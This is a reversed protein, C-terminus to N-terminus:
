KPIFGDFGRQLIKQEVESITTASQIYEQKCKKSYLELVKQDDRLSPLSKIFIFYAITFKMEFYSHTDDGANVGRKFINKEDYRGLLFVVKYLYRQHIIKSKNKSAYEVDLIIPCSVIENLKGFETQEKVLQSVQKKVLEQLEMVDIPNAFKRPRNGLSHIKLSKIDLNEVNTHSVRIVLGDRSIKIASVNNNICNSLIETILFILPILAIVIEIWPIYKGIIFSFNKADRNTRKERKRKSMKATKKNEKKMAM